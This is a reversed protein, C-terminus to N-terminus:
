ILVPLCLHVLVLKILHLGEKSLLQHKRLQMDFDFKQLLSMQAHILFSLITCLDFSSKGSMAAEYPNLKMHDGEWVELMQEWAEIEQNQVEHLGSDLM